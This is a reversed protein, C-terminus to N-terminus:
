VSKASDGGGGPQLTKLLKKPNVARVPARGLERRVKLDSNPAGGAPARARKKKKVAPWHIVFGDKGRM